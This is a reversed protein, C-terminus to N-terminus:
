LGLEYGKLGQVKMSAIERQLAYCIDWTNGVIIQMCTTLIDFAGRYYTPVSKCTNAHIM